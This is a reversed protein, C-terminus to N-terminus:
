IIRESNCLTVMASYLCGIPNALEDSGGSGMTANVTLSESALSINKMHNRLITSNVPKTFIDAVNDKSEVYNLVISGVAVRDRVYHQNIQVHRVKRLDADGNAVKLCAQNDEYITAPSSSFGMLDSYTNQLGQVHTTVKSLALFEAEMASKAVTTQLKSHWAICQGHWYIAYGSRSRRGESEGAWDSDTYARFPMEDEKGTFEYTLALNQTGVLYRLMHQLLKFHQKNHNCLYGSLASVGYALDPRTWTCLYNLMGIIELYKSTHFSEEPNYEPIDLSPLPTSVPHANDMQTTELVETVYKAQSLSIRRNPRNRTIDIGLFRTADGLDKTKFHKHFANRVKTLLEGQKGIVLFDDVHYILEVTTGNETITFLCPESQIPKFGEETLAEVVKRGWLHPSQKLGYVAKKLKWVLLEGNADYTEFGPPPYLYIEKDIDAHLFATSIDLHVIELDEKAAKAMLMRWTDSRLTAAFTRNYDNGYTQTFGKAVYRAKFKIISGNKHYKIDYVWRGQIIKKSDPAIVAEFAGMESFQLIEEIMAKKWYEALTGQIAQKFNKPLIVKNGVKLVLNNVNLESIHKVFEARSIPEKRRRKVRESRRLQTIPTEPPADTAHRKSGTEPLSKYTRQTGSQQGETSPPPCDSVDMITTNQSDNGSLTEAHNNGTNQSEQTADTAQQNDRSENSAIQEQMPVVEEQQLQESNSNDQQATDQMTDDMHADGEFHVHREQSTVDAQQDKETMVHDMLVDEDVTSTICPPTSEENVNADEKRPPPLANDVQDASDVIIDDVSMDQIQNRTDMVSPIPSEPSNFSIEKMPDDPAPGNLPDSEFLNGFQYVYELGKAGARHFTPIFIPRHSLIPSRNTKKGFQYNAPLAMFEKESFHAHYVELWRNLHPVYVIWGKKNEPFGMFIGKVSKHDFTGFKPLLDKNKHLYAVCGFVKFRRIDFERGTFLTYPSTQNKKTVVVNLISTIYALAEVWLTHPLKCHTLVCTIMQKLNKIKNEAFGNQHPTDPITMQHVIGKEKYFDKLRQNVFETGNDSRVEKIQRATQKEVQKMWNIIYEPVDSKQAFAKTFSMKSYEDMIVLFYKSGDHATPNIHTALDMHVRDLVHKAKNMSHTPCSSAKSKGLLCTECDEIADPADVDFGDAKLTHKLTEFSRHGLREHWDQTSTINGASIHPVQMPDVQVYSLGDRTEAQLIVIEKGFTKPELTIRHEDLTVTYDKYFPTTAMLNLTFEPVYYVPRITFFSNNPLRFTVSGSAKTFTSTGDPFNIRINTNDIINSLYSKNNTFHCSAGSDVIWNDNNANRNQISNLLMLSSNNAFTFEKENTKTDENTHFYFKSKPCIARAHGLERCFTCFAHECYRYDHAPKGKCKTLGCDFNPEGGTKKETKSNGNGVNNSSYSSSKSSEEECEDFELLIELLDDKEIKTAEGCHMEKEFRTISKLSTKSMTADLQKLADEIINSVALKQNPISSWGYFSLVDVIRKYYQTFTEPKCRKMKNIFAPVIPTLDLVSKRYAFVIELCTMDSFKGIRTNDEYAKVFEAKEDRDFLKGIKSATKQDEEIMKKEHDKLTSKESMILKRVADVENEKPPTYEDELFPVSDVTFKWLEYGWLAKEALTWTSSWPKPTKDENSGM